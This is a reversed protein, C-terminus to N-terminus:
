RGWPRSQGIVSSSAPPVVLWAALREALMVTPLHTNARPLDPMVSADVVWLGETGLVAGDPGVVAMPDDPRGMRCTGAAHVYDGVAGELWADLARDDHLVAAPTGRDDCAVLETVAEVAPHEVLDLLRRVAARLRARDRGDALLDFRVDPPSAPDDDRLTVRGRSFVRMLAVQVAGVARGAPGAGTAGLTLVQLDGRGATTGSSTRVLSSLPRARDDALRAPERLALSLGASAHDALNAGVGPRDLGSRLLLAPSHVAGCCLVVGDAGVEEGGATRVGTARGKAVLVRDVLVDGRITLNPRARAPELYADNSASRRGGRLALPAPGIGEAGAADPDPCWPYGLDRAARAVARELPSWTGLAPLHRAGTTALAAFTPEVDRWAWGRAGLRAWTDYDEPLGRLVVLANVASSGGVGRGQWYPRRPQGPRREALLDWTRGPEALAALFNQGALAPPTHAADHDPGAELLVVHTDPGESLRAAVVAGASGAGVVVWTRGM